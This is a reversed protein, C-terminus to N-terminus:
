YISQFQIIYKERDKVYITAFHNYIPSRRSTIIAIFDDQEVM